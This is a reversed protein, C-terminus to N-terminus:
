RRQASLVNWGNATLLLDIGRGPWAGKELSLMRTVTRGGPLSAVLLLGEAQRDAAVIWFPDKRSLVKSSPGTPQFRLTLASGMGQRFYRDANEDTDPMFLAAAQEPAAYREKAALYEDLDLAAIYVEVVDFGPSGPFGMSRSELRIRVEHALQKAAPSLPQARSGPHRDGVAETGPPREPRLAEEELERVAKPDATDPYVWGCGALGACAATVSVIFLWASIKM